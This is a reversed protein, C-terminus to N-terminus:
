RDGRGIRYGMWAPGGMLLFMSLWVDIPPSTEVLAVGIFLFYFILGNVPSTAFNFAAWLFRKM